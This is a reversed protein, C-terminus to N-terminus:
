CAFGCGPFSSQPQRQVQLQFHPGSAALSTVIGGQPMSPLASLFSFHLQQQAQQQPRSAWRASLSAVIGGKAISICQQEMAELLATPDCGEVVCTYHHV